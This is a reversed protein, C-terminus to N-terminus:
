TMHSRNEREKDWHDLVHTDPPYVHRWADWGSVPLLAVVRLAGPIEVRENGKAVLGSNSAKASRSWNM